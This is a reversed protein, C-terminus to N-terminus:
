LQSLFLALIAIEGIVAIGAAGWSALVRPWAPAIEAHVPVTSTEQGTRIAITEDLHAAGPTWQRAHWYVLWLLGQALGGGLLAPLGFLLTPSWAHSSKWPQTVAGQQEAWRWAQALVRPAQPKLQPLAIQATQATVTLTTQAATFTEPQVVLWHASTSVQGQLLQGQVSTVILQEALVQATTGQIALSFPMVHLQPTSSPLAPVVSPSVAVAPQSSVPPASVIPTVAPLSFQYAHAQLQLSPLTAFIQKAGKCNKLSKRVEAISQYREDVKLKIAKALIQELRDSVQANLQRAPPYSWPNQTVDYGTILVLLTVGLAFIDSRADTQGQGYQEPPAFGPTGLLKTDKRQGPKYFRVIGFDILKILSSSSEIMINGPKLDRYIIPPTQQHLYELVACLQFAIKLVEAESLLGAGVLEELTEGKICEMVLYEKSGTTFRDIVKVLNPHDLKGLLDAERHFDQVALAMEAPELSDLSMEKLAWEKGPQRSDQVKYVTSMGGQALKTIITYRGHLVLGGPLDGSGPTQPSPHPRNLNAACGRCYKAGARNATHCHPCRMEAMPAACRSCHRAQRRNEQQCHPCKQVLTRGCAGCFKAGRRNLANCDPCLQVDLPARCCTCFRAGARNQQGCALCALM